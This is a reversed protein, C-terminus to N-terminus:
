INAAVSLADSKWRLDQTRSRSDTEIEQVGHLVSCSASVRQPPANSKGAKMGLRRYKERVPGFIKGPAGGLSNRPCPASIAACTAGYVRTKRPTKSFDRIIERNGPIGRRCPSGNSRCSHRGRASALRGPRKRACPPFESQAAEASPAMSPMTNM